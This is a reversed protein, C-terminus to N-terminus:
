GACLINLQNGSILGFLKRYVSNRCAYLENEQKTSYKVVAYTLTPLCYSELTLHMIEDKKASIVKQLMLRVIQRVGQMKIPSLAVQSGIIEFSYSNEFSFLKWRRTTLIRNDEM